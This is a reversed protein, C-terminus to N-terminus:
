RLSWMKETHRPWSQQNASPPFYAVQKRTGRGENVNSAVGGSHNTPATQCHRAARLAEQRSRSFLAGCKRGKCQLGNAMSQEGWVRLRDNLIAVRIKGMRFQSVRSISASWRGPEEDIPDHGHQLLYSTYPTCYLVYARAGRSKDLYAPRGRVRVLDSQQVDQGGRSPCPTEAWGLSKTPRYGAIGLLRAATPPGGAMQNSKIPDRSVKGSPQDVARHGRKELLGSHSYKGV